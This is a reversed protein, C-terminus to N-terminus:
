RGVARDLTAAAIRLGAIARTVDLGARLRATEADLLESSPILGAAYRDRSVRLNEGAAVANRDAVVLAARATELDLTRRTVELRIRRDLDELERRAAEAIADARDVEAATRGSDFLTFAFSVGVDWTSEWVAEPPLVERNPNATDYGAALSARPKWGSRAQRARAEAAERRARLAAREPRSQMARDVLTGPDEPEAEVARIPEIPDVRTGPELGLLRVLDANAVRAANDAQLRDLEARDREVQVALVENRAAMGAEMRNRADTLHSEFSAIAERLVREAERAQVLEWYAATTELVVDAAAGERESGAADREREAAAIGNELRGGTYLPVSLGLRSRYNDPIDPFITRPPSGPAALTLEPVHSARVYAASLDVEPLREARAARHGAGAAAELAEQRALRPSSARAREIAEALTLPIAAQAEGGGAEEAATASVPTPAAVLWVLLLQCSALFPVIGRARSTLIM